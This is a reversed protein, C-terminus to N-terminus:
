GSIFGQVVQLQTTVRVQACSTKCPCAVRDAPQVHGLVLRLGIWSLAAQLHYIMSPAGTQSSQNYIHCTQINPFYHSSKYRFLLKIKHMVIYRRLANCILYVFLLPSLVPARLCKCAYVCVWDRKICACLKIGVLVRLLGFWYIKFNVFNGYSWLHRVISSCM